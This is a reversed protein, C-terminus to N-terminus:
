RVRVSSGGFPRRVKYYTAARSTLVAAQSAADGDASATSKRALADFTEGLKLLLRVDLGNLRLCRDM